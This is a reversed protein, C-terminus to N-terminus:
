LGRGSLRIRDNRDREADLKRVALGDNRCHNNHVREVLRRTNHREARDVVARMNGARWRDPSEAADQALDGTNGVAALVIRLGSHDPKGIDIGAVRRRDLYLGVGLAMVDNREGVLIGRMSVDGRRQVLLLEGVDMRHFDIEDHHGIGAVLVGTRCGPGVRDRIMGEIEQRVTLRQRQGIRRLDVVVELWEVFHSERRKGDGDGAGIVLGSHNRGTAANRFHMTRGIIRVQVGRGAGDGEGIDIQGVPRHHARGDRGGLGVLIEIGITVVHRRRQRRRLLRGDIGHHHRENHNLAPRVAVVAGRRPSVALGVAREVEKAIVLRQDKIVHRRDIVAMAPDDARRDDNGDVAGISRNDAGVVNRGDHVVRGSRGCGQGLLDSRRDKRAATGNCEAVDVQGVDMGGREHQFRRVRRRVQRTIRLRRREAFDSLKRQQRHVLAGAVRDYARDAPGERDVVVIRHHLRQGFALADRLNVRDRDVVAMGTAGNLLVDRHGDVAGVVRRHQTGVDRTRGAQVGDGLSCGRRAAYGSRALRIRGRARQCERVDIQDIRVLGALSRRREGPVIRVANRQRKGLILLGGQRRRARERQRRMVTGSGTDTRHVEAVAGGVASEIEQGFTLLQGNGIIDGNGIVVDVRRLRNGNSDGAGVVVGGDRRAGRIRIDSRHRFVVRQRRATRQRNGIDVGALIM